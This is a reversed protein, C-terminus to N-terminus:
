LMDPCLHTQACDHPRLAHIAVFKHNGICLFYIGQQIKKERMIFSYYFTFTDCIIIMLVSAVIALEQLVHETIKKARRVSWDHIM